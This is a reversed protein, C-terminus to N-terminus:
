KVKDLINSIKALDTALDQLKTNVYQAVQLGADDGPEIIPELKDLVKELNASPGDDTMHKNFKKEINDALDSILKVKKIDIIEKAGENTSFNEQIAKALSM